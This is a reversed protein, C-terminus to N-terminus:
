LPCCRCISFRLQLPKTSGPLCCCGARFDTMKNLTRRGARSFRIKEGRRMAASIGFKLDAFILIIGLVAFWKLPKMFDTMEILFVSTVYETIHNEKM